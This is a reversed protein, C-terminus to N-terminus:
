EATTSGGNRNGALDEVVFDFEFRAKETCVDLGNGASVSAAASWLGDGQDSLDFSSVPTEASISSDYVDVYVLAIDSAGDPDSVSAEFTWDADGTCTVYASVLVPGGTELGTDGCGSIVMAMMGFLAGLVGSRGASGGSGHKRGQQHSKM